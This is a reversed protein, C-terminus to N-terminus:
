FVEILGGSNIVFYIFWCLGLILILFDVVWFCLGCEGFFNFLVVVFCLLYFCSIGWRVWVEWFILMVRLGGVGIVLGLVCCVSM